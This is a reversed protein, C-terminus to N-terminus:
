KLVIEFNMQRLNRLIKVAVQHVENGSLQPMNRDHMMTRILREVEKVTAGIMEGRTYQRAVENINRMHTVTTTTEQYNLYRM